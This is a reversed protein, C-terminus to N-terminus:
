RLFFIGLVCLGYLALDALLPGDTLLIKEPRGGGAKRYVLDLYRFIGFIVFPITLALLPTGFKHVTETALTYIAYSVITAASVVAILQDLLQRDYYELSPRHEEASLDLILKEHRRKCLALFLALLFACVLLWPSIPVHIVLGGGAARLVFGAAIVFIDVLAVHKLRCTYVIQLAVYGTLIAAFPRSLLFAASLALALLFASLLGAAPVPLRGAAIPRFRKVPHLRDAALDRIDNLLYLGSSALCFLVFAALVRAFTAPLTPGILGQTRDGLAFCFAALVVLNKTWQNVRLASLIDLLRTM